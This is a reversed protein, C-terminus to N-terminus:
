RRRVAVVTDTVVATEGDPGSAERSPTDLRAAEFVAPDLDLGDFIERPTPYPDERNWGWPRDSGHEVVLLTGGPALAGAARRLVEDRPFVFPTQLYLAAVLDFEGDPFSVALDHRETVVRGGVGADAAHERVRELATPSIDVATVHWGLAALHVADGGEGAGLDLARGPKLGAIAAALPPNARGSWVKPRTAYREEWFHAAESTM